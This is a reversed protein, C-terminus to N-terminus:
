KIVQYSLLNNLRQISPPRLHCSKKNFRLNIPCKLTEFPTILAQKFIREFEYNKSLLSQFASSFCFLTPLRKFFGEKRVWLWHGKFQASSLIRANGNPSLFSNFFSFQVSHHRIVGNYKSRLLNRTPRSFCTTLVQSIADFLRRRLVTIKLM